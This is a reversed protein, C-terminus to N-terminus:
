RSAPAGRTIETSAYLNSDELPRGHANADIWEVTTAVAVFRSHLIVLVAQHIQEATLSGESNPM